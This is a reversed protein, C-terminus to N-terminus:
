IYSLNEGLYKLVKVEKMKKNCLTLPSKELQAKLSKRAKKNGMVIYMCKDLNFELGKKGIIEEMLNNAFQASFTSAAMRFIDDMFILSSLRISNYEVEYDGGKCAFTDSVENGISTSSIPPGDVSGQAVSPGTDASQTVGVPTQVRIRVNKNMEYM